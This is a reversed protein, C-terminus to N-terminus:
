AQHPGQFFKVYIQGFSLSPRPFIQCSPLHNLNYTECIFCKVHIGLGCYHNFKTHYIMNEEQWILIQIIENWLTIM